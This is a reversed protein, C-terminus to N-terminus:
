QRCVNSVEDDVEEILNRLQKHKQKGEVGRAVELFKYQFTNVLADMVHRLKERAQLMIVNVDFTNLNEELSTLEKEMSELHQYATQMESPTRALM